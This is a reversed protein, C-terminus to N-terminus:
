SQKLEARFVDKYAMYSAIVLWPLLAMLLLPLTALGLWILAFNIAGATLLPPLNLLAARASHKVAAFANVGHFVILATAFVLPIGVLISTVDIAIVSSLRIPAREGFVVRRFGAEDELSTATIAAGLLTVMSIVGLVLLPQFAQQFGALMDRVNLQNAEARRCGLLLGGEIIAALVHRLTPGVVNILDLLLLLAFYLAGMLLWKGPARLLLQLANRYWSLASAMPVARPAPPPALAPAPEQLQAQPPRYPNFDQM